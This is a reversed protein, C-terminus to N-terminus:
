WNRIIDRVLRGSETLDADSWNGNPDAGPVLASAGEEKDGLAWNAHSINNTKLFDMWADTEQRNVAGDGDANVTGWETVFLPIGADLAQQATQRLFSHTGAYFHLVYAVNSDNIPDQAAEDVRQSWTPTGVVILNDQDYQRIAAIVQEAYPKIVNSWSVQLPENYIEYIINNYGNYRQAMETFFEVAAEPYDEAHHTHWDIIVYMGHAIAADAVAIAMNTQTIRAADSSVYGAMPSNERDNRDWFPDVGIAARVLEANWDNKLTEVVGETYFPAGEGATSWFLSMGAISDPEGDFLMQNGQTTIQRVRPGEPVDGGGVSPAGSNTGEADSLTFNDLNFIGSGSAGVFCLVYRGQLYEDLGVNTTEFTDWGGTSESIQEALVDGNASGAVIQFSAAAANGKAYHVDISRVGTLDIDDYCLASGADFYGVWQHSPDTESTEIMYGNSLSANLTEAQITMGSFGGGGVSSAASSSSSSVAPISSSSVPPASSSSVPASSSSVPAASSSTEGGPSGCAAISAALLGAATFKALKSEGKFYKPLIM